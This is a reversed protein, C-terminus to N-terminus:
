KRKVFNGQKDFVLTPSDSLEVKYGYAKKKIQTISRRPYNEAIYKVMNVPLIDIISKPLPYYDSEIKIWTGGREFDIEYGNKFKVEYIGDEADYKMKDLAVDKFHKNLFVTMKEPPDVQEIHKGRASAPLVVMCFIINMMFLLTRISKMDNRKTLIEKENIM